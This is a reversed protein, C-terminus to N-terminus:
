GTIKFYDVNRNVILPNLQQCLQSDLLSKGQHYEFSHDNAELGSNDLAIDLKTVRLTSAGCEGIM